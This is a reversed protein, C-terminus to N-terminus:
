YFGHYTTLKFNKQDYEKFINKITDATYIVKDMKISNKRLQTFM